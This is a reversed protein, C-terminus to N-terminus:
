LLKHTDVFERTLTVPSPLAGTEDSMKGSIFGDKWGNQKVITNKDLVWRNLELTAVTEKYGFSYNLTEVESYDTQPSSAWSGDRAAETDINEFYIEVLSQNRMPSRMSLKYADSVQKM